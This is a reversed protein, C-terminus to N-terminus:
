GRLWSGEAIGSRQEESEGDTVLLLPPIREGPEAEDATCNQTRYVGRRRGRVSSGAVTWSATHRSFFPLPRGPGPGQPVSLGLVPKAHAM